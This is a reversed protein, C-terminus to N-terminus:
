WTEGINGFDINGFPNTGGGAGNGQTAGGVQNIIQGVNGFPNSGGGIPGLSDSVTGSSGSEFLYAKYKPLSGNGLIYLFFALMVLGMVVSFWSLGTGQQIMRITSGTKAM